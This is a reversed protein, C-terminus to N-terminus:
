HSPEREPFKKDLDLNLLLVNVRPEGFLGWTRGATHQAVLQRVDELSAGRAKAVRSAQAEANAPSIDPDLGSASATVADAPIPGTYDPNDKRFHDVSVEVRDILKQNTPGYQSGNSSSGDYGNGAASPRPQFYQPKSFNQGILASGVAKGNVTVMSGNAQHYFLIQCLGTVIGPYILGTLITFLLMIRLAPGFQRWM